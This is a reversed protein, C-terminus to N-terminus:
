TICFILIMELSRVYVIVELFVVSNFFCVFLEGNFILHPMLKKMEKENLEIGESALFHDLDLIDIM